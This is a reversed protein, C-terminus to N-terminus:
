VKYHMVDNVDTEFVQKKNVIRNEVASTTYYRIFVVLYYQNISQSHYLLVRNHRNSFVSANEKLSQPIRRVETPVDAEETLM